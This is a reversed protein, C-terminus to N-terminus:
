KSFRKELAQLFQAMAKDAAAASASNGERAITAKRSVQFTAAGDCIDMEEIRGDFELTSSFQCRGEANDPQILVFGLAKETMLSRAPLRGYWSLLKVRIILGDTPPIEGPLGVRPHNTIGKRELIGCLDEGLIQGPRNPDTGDSTYLYHPHDATGQREIQPRQDEIAFYIPRGLKVRGPAALYDHTERQTSRTACGTLLLSLLVQALLIFNKNMNHSM